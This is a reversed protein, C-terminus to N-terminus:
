KRKESFGEPEDVALGFISALEDVYVYDGFHEQLMSSSPEYGYGSQLGFRRLSNLTEILSERSSASRERLRDIEELLDVRASELISEAWDACPFPKIARIAAEREPTM